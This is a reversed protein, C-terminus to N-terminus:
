QGPPGSFRQRVTRLNDQAAPYDPKLRLATAFEEQAKEPQGLECLLAGLNNHAEASLPDLRVAEKLEATAQEPQGNQLLLGGIYNRIAANQPQLRAAKRYCDIAEDSRKLKVLVVALNLYGDAFGPNAQICRSFQNVAAELNGQAALVYGMCNYANGRSPDLKIEEELQSKAEELRGLHTLLLSYNHHADAYDPDLSLATKYHRESEEAQNLDALAVALNNHSKARTPDRCIAQAFFEAAKQKQGKEAYLAGLNNYAEVKAPDLAIVEHFLALAQEGLGQKKCAYAAQIRWKALDPKYPVLPIQHLLYLLIAVASLIVAPRYRRRRYLDCINWLAFAALVVMAPLIPARYRSLALFPLVALCYVAIFLVLLVCLEDAGRPPPSALLRSDPKGSRPWLAAAGLVGLVFLFSFNGPLRRLLSSEQRAYQIEVPDGVEAPGLLLALKRATQASWARPHQIVYACAKRTWYRSAESPKVPRGLEKELSKLFVPYHYPTWTDLGTTEKLEPINATRGTTLANNGIYLNFGGYCSLLVLDRSVLINRMAVPAVLVAIGLLLGGLARPVRRLAQRRYALWVLWGIACPVFILINGRVIAFCGLAIGALCGRTFSIREICLGLTYLVLMALFVSLATDYLEGEFHIFLWYCSMMAAATLASGAGLRKRVLLFALLCGLLGFGFQIARPPVYGHGFLRYGGALFWPYGPLKYYPLKDLQPNPYDKDLIWEGTAMGRAWYDCFSADLLPQSFLPSPRIEALYIGRLVLGVLLIFVLVLLDRATVRASGAAKADFDRRGGSSDLNGSRAKQLGTALDKM